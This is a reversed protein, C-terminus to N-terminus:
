DYCLSIETRIYNLLLDCVISDGYHRVQCDVLCLMIEVFPVFVIVLIFELLIHVARKNVTDTLMWHIWTDTRPAYELGVM